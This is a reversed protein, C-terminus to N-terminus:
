VHARGIQLTNFVEHRSQLLDKFHPEFIRILHASGITRVNSTRFAGDLLGMEGFGEGPGLVNLDVELGQRSVRYIRVTGAVIVYFAEAKEGEQALLTQDPFCIAECKDLLSSLDAASLSQFLRVKSLAELQIDQVVKRLEDQSLSKQRVLIQGVPAYMGQAALEKQEALARILAQSTCLGRQVLKTGIKPAESGSPVSMRDTQGEVTLIEKSIEM